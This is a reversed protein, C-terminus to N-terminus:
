AAEGIRHGEPLRDLLRRTLHERLPAVGISDVVARAFAFTLLARAIPTDVGRSRLYFLQDDDLQGVTAGHTCRVDDAHIELQPRTDVEAAESLLLNHNLQASDTKQAGPHVVVQGTFVGRARGDLVGRYHERSTGHPTAHDIRTHHDVHQRGGAVYLGDLSAHCHLGAFQTTVDTRALRAGLSVVHSALRSHAQQLVHVAGIHVSDDPEQQIRCHDVTAGEAAFVQTLANTFSGAGHHGVYREVLTVRAGAEAVIVNRLNLAARRATAVFVLEIPRTAGADRALHLWAGDTMFAANLRGFVTERERHPLWPELAGPDTALVAALSDLTVGAPLLGPASLTPVHRGDVFVLRHADFGPVATERLVAAALAMSADQVPPAPVFAERELPTLRTYKWAEDRETPFGSVAFADLGDRRLREVWPVRHGPLRPALSAHTALIRERVDAQPTV